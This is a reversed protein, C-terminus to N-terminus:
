DCAGRRMADVAVSIERLASVMVVPLLPNREHIEDLLSIGSMDRLDVETLVLHYHGGELARLAEGGSSVLNVTHGQQELTACLVAREGAEDDVVLVMTTGSATVDGSNPGEEFSAQRPVPLEPKKIPFSM